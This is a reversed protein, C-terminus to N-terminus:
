VETWGFNDCFLVRGTGVEVLVDGVSMSMHTAGLVKFGERMDASMFEGQYSVFVDEPDGITTTGVFTYGFDELGRHTSPIIWGRENLFDFGMRVDCMKHGHDSRVVCDKDAEPMDKRGLYFIDFM